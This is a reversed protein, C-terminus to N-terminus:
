RLLTNKFRDFSARCFPCKFVQHLLNPLVYKPKYFIQNNWEGTWIEECCKSCTFKGCEMCTINTDDYYCTPKEVNCCHPVDCNIKSM